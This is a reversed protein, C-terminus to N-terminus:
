KLIVKSNKNNKKSLLRLIHFIVITNFKFNLSFFNQSLEYKQNHM